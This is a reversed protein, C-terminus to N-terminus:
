SPTENVPPVDGGSLPIAENYILAAHTHDCEFEVTIGRRDTATKGFMIKPSFFLPFEKSGFQVREGTNPDVGIIIGRNNNLKRALALSEKKTGPYFFEGKQLFSKGDIEGQNEAEGGFTRPTVYIQYFSKDEKFVYTGNLTVLEGDDTPNTNLSPFTAIENFIGLYAESTFGGMNDGGDWEIDAFVFGTALTILGIDPNGSFFSGVALITFTISLLTLLGRVINRSNISLNKM